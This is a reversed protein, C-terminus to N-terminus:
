KLDIFAVWLIPSCEVSKKIRKNCKTAINQSDKRFWVTTYPLICVWVPTDSHCRIDKGYGKEAYRFALCCLVQALKRRQRQGVGLFPGAPRGMDRGRSDKCARCYEILFWWKPLRSNRPLRNPQVQLVPDAHHMHMYLKKLFTCHWKM